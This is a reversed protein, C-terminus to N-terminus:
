NAKTMTEQAQLQAEYPASDTWSVFPVLLMLAKRWAPTVSTEETKAKAVEGGAVLMIVYTGNPSFPELDLQLDHTTTALRDAEAPSQFFEQPILRGGLYGTTGGVTM